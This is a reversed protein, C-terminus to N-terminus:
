NVLALQSTVTTNPSGSATRGAGGTGWVSFTIKPTSDILVEYAEDKKVIIQESDPNQPLNINATIKLDTTIDLSNSDPVTITDDASGIWWQDRTLTPNGWYMNKVITTNGPVTVYDLVWNASNSTLNTVVVPEETNYLVTVDDADAQIYNGNILALAPMVIITRGTVAYTCSNTIPIKAFYKYNEATTIAGESETGPSVAAVYDLLLVSDLAGDRGITLISDDVGEREISKLSAVGGDYIYADVGALMGVLIITILLLSINKKM